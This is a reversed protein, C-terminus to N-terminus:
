LYNSMLTICLEGGFCVGMIANINPTTSYIMVRFSSLYIHQTDSIPAYLGLGLVVWNSYVGFTSISIQPPISSGGSVSGKCKKKRIKLVTHSLGARLARSDPRLDVIPADVLSNNAFCHFQASFLEKARIFMTRCSTM